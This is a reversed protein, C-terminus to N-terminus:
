QIVMKIVWRHQRCFVTQSLICLDSLKSSINFVFYTIVRLFSVNKFCTIEPVVVNL